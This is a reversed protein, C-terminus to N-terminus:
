RIVIVNAVATDSRNGKQDALFFSLKMTDPENEIGSGPIRIGQIGRSLYGSNSLTLEIEGESKDPFSPIIFREPSKTTDGKVNLRRRVMFIASDVDGEKDTFEFTITLSDGRPVVEKNLSTVKLSPKSEFKNKSCAVLVMILIIVSTIKKM